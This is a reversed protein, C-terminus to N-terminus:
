LIVLGFRKDILAEIIPRTYKGGILVSVIINTDIIAKTM